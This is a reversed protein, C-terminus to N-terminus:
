QLTAASKDLLEQMISYSDLFLIERRVKMVKPEGTEKDKTTFEDELM